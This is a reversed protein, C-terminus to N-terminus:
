VVSVSVFPFEVDPFLDVGVRPYSFVGFVILAVSLMVAFVPRRISIDAIKM